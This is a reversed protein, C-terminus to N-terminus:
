ENDRNSIRTTKGAISAVIQFGLATKTLLSGCCEDQLEILIIKFYVVKCLIKRLYGVITKQVNKVCNSIPLWHM